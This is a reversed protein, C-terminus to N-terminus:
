VSNESGRMIVVAVLAVVEFARALITIIWEAVRKVVRRGGRGVAQSAERWSRTGRMGHLYLLM